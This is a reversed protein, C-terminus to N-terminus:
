PKPAPTVYQEPVFGVRGEPDRVQLWAARETGGTSPTGTGHLGTVLVQLRTGEDWPVWKSSWEPRRRLYVGQGDTNAVAVWAGVSVAPAMPTPIAASAPPAPGDGTDAASAAATPQVQVPPAARLRKLAEASVAVMVLIGTVVALIFLTRPLASHGLRRRVPESLAVWRIIALVLLFPGCLLLYFPWWWRSAYARLGAGAQPSSQAAPPRASAPAPLAATPRLPSAARTRRRAPPGSSLHASPRSRIAGPIAEPGAPGDGLAVGAAACEDLAAEHWVHRDPDFPATPVDPPRLAATPSAAAHGRGTASSEASRQRTADRSVLRHEVDVINPEDPLPSPRYPRRHPRVTAM